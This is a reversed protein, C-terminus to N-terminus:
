LLKYCYDWGACEGGLGIIVQFYDEKYQALLDQQEAPEESDLIERWYDLDVDKFLKDVNARKIKAILDIADNTGRDKTTEAAKLFKRKYCCCLSNLYYKLKSIPEKDLTEDISDLFKDRGVGGETLKRSFLLTVFETFKSEFIGLIKVVKAAPKATALSAVKDGVMGAATVGVTMIAMNAKNEAMSLEHSGAVMGGFTLASFLKSLFPKPLLQQYAGEYELKLQFRFANYYCYFGGLMDLYALGEERIQTYQKQYQRIGEIREAKFADFKAIADERDEADIDEPFVLEIEAEQEIYDQEEEDSIDIKRTVYRRLENMENQHFNLRLIKNTFQAIDELATLKQLEAKLINQPQVLLYDDPLLYRYGFLDEPNGLAAFRSELNGLFSGIKERVSDYKGQSLTNYIGLYGVIIDRLETKLPYEPFLGLDQYSEFNWLESSEISSEISLDRQCENLDARYRVVKDNYSNVKLRNGQELDVDERDLVDRQGSSINSSSGQDEPYEERDSQVKM